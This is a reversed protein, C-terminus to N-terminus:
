HFFLNIFLLLIPINYITSTEVTETNADKIEKLIDKLVEWKPPMELYPETESAKKDKSTQQKTKNRFILFFISNHKLSHFM